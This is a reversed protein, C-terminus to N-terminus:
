KYSNKAFSRVLKLNGYDKYKIYFDHDFLMDKLSMNGIKEKLKNEELKRKERMEKTLYKKNKFYEIIYSIVTSTEFVILILILINIIKLTGFNIIATSIGNNLYVLFTNDVLLYSLSITIGAIWMKIKGFINAKINYGYSYKFSQIIAILLEIGIPILAYPTIFCLLLLNIVLFFKDSVGDFLSGFFTSSNLHRALFGDVLDTLFCIVALIFTAFGGFNLYVPILAFIGIVRLLTVVNTIIIKGNIGKM